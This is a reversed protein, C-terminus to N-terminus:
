GRVLWIGLLIMLVVLVGAVAGVVFLGIALDRLMKGYFDGSV